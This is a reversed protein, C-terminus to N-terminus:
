LIGPCPFYLTHRLSYPNVAFPASHPTKNSRVNGSMKHCEKRLFPFNLTLTLTKEEGGGPPFIHRDVVGGRQIGAGYRPVPHREKAPIVTTPLAGCQELPIQPCRILAM